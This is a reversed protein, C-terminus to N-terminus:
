AACDARADEVRREARIETVKGDVVDVQWHMPVDAHGDPGHVRLRGTVVVCGDHDEFRHGVTEMRVGAAALRRGHDLVEERGRLPEGGRHHPVWRVDDSVYPMTAPLGGQAYREWVAKVIEVPDQVSM